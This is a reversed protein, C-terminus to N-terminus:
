FLLLFDLDLGKVLLTVVGMIYQAAFALFFVEMGAILPQIIKKIVKM